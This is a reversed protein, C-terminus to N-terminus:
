SLIFLFKGPNNEGCKSTSNPTGKCTCTQIFPNSIECGENIEEVTVPVAVFICTICIVLYLVTVIIHM